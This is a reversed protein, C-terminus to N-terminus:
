SHLLIFHERNEKESFNNDYNSVDFLSVNRIYKYAIQYFADFETINGLFELKFHEPNLQLQEATFLIYYIFDEATKYEFSNFLQLKQNQVVIIEFHNETVHVFMKREDNNKSLDLLKAVLISNAHHYEFTGYKDIFFNNMNVYPIYVNNMEYKEISDYTFFDTEFVKSNYQLYSGIFEEDFLAVPVFTSLMNSHIIKVEDYKADLEPNNKYVPEFLDETKSSKLFADFHINKLISPKGSITDFCCFSVGNLSVLITLKTYNKDTISSSMQNKIIQLSVFFNDFELELVFIL